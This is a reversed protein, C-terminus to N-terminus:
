PFRWAAGLGLAGDLAPVKYVQNGDITVPESPFAGVAEVFVRLVVHEGFPTTQVGLRGGAAAWFASQTRSTTVEQGSAWLGGAAVIACGFAFAIHVCPVLQGAAIGSQAQLTRHSADVDSASVPVDFRGEVDLSLRRWAVGFTLALGPGIGPVPARVALLQAGAEFAVAEGPARRPPEHDLPPLARRDAAAARPEPGPAPSERPEGHVERDSPANEPTAAAPSEDAAPSGGTMRSPDIILSITLAMAETLAACSEGHVAIERAGRELAEEGVMKVRARFGDATREIEAVVTDHAWPFFPDYGLRAAVAARLAPEDACGQAGPGRDYVLRASTAPARARAVGPLMALAVAAVTGAGIWRSSPMAGCCRV